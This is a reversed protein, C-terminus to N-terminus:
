QKRNYLTFISILILETTVLSGLDECRSLRTVVSSYKMHEGNIHSVKNCLHYWTKNIFLNCNQETTVLSGLHECRLLRTVVSSFDINRGNIYYVINCGM